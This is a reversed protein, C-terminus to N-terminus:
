KLAPRGAAFGRVPRSAVVRTVSVPFQEDEAHEGAIQFIRDIENMGRGWEQIRCFARYGYWGVVGVVLTSAGLLLAIM